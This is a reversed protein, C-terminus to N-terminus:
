FGCINGIHEIYFNGGSIQGHNETEAADVAAYVDPMTKFLRGCGFLRSSVTVDFSLSHFDIIILLFM